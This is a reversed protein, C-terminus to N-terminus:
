PRTSPTPSASASPREARSRGSPEPAREIQRKPQRLRRGLDPGNVAAIASSQRAGPSRVGRGGAETAEIAVMAGGEPLEGMLRGRAAVLKAADELSFVGAVHAAAIEGVSHGSLLDPKLGWSELLRYLAM